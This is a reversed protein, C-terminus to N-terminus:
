YSFKSVITEMELLSIIAKGTIVVRKQWYQM